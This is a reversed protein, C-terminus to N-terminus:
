RLRFEDGKLGLFSRMRSVVTNLHPTKKHKTIASITHDLGSKHALPSFESLSRLKPLLCHPYIYWLVSFYLKSISGIAYIFSLM